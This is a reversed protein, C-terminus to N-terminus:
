IGSGTVTVSWRDEVIEEVPMLKEELPGPVACVDPSAIALLSSIATDKRALKVHCM